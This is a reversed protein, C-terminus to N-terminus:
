SVHNENTAALIEVGIPLERGGILDFAHGIGLQGIANSSFMDQDEDVAVPRGDVVHACRVQGDLIAKASM